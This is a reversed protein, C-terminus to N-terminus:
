SVRAQRKARCGVFCACAIVALSALSPEPIAVASNAASSLGGSGPTPNLSKGLNNRWVTYDAADVVGDINGDAFFFFVSDAHSGYAFKWQAYDNAGVTRNEDYDGDIARRLDVSAQFGGPQNITIVLDPPDVQAPNWINGLSVSRLPPLAGAVASGSAESMLTATNSTINWQNTPAIFGNGSADYVGAISQWAGGGGQLAGSASAISYSLFAFPESNRNQFRVEGTFPFIQVRINQPQARAGSGVMGLALGVGCAVILRRAAM